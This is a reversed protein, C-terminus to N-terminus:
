SRKGHLLRLGPILQPVRRRYQEYTGPFVEKLLREESHIKVEVVVVGLVFAATWVGLGVALATGLLMGVIGTYIPHRTIAYPGDTRLEHDKREVASSSWMTGLELRAWLTFVTSGVLLAMGIARVWSSGTDLSHWDANPVAKFVLWAGV